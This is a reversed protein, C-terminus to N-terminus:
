YTSTCYYMPTPDDELDSTSFATSGEPMRSPWNLAPWGAEIWGDPADEELWGIPWCFSPIVDYIGTSVQKREAKDFVAHLDLFLVNVGDKGHNDEGELGGIYEYRLDPGIYGDDEPTGPDTPDQLGCPAAAPDNPHNHRYNWSHNTCWPNGGAPDWKYEDGEDENDAMFRMAGGLLAENPQVGRQGVYIYSIAAVRQLGRWYDWMCQNYDRDAVSRSNYKDRTPAPNLTDSPCWFIMADTVYDPWLTDSCPVTPQYGEPIEDPCHVALSPLDAWRDPLYGHGFNQSEPLQQSHDTQFQSFSGSLQRLNNLCAVRKAAQRAGQLAPMLLGALISIIAIVVLLEILTFGKKM